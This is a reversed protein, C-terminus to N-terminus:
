YHSKLSQSPNAVAEVELRRLEGAQEALARLQGPVDHFFTFSNGVFLVRLSQQPGTVSSGGADTAVDDRRQPRRGGTVCASPQATPYSGANAETASSGREPECAASSVCLALVSLLTKPSRQPQM